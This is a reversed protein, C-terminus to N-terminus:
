SQFEMSLRHVHGSTLTIGSKKSSVMLFIAQLRYSFTNISTPNQLFAQHFNDRMSSPHHVQKQITKYPHEDIGKYPHGSIGMYPHRSIRIFSSMNGQVPYTPLIRLLPKNM